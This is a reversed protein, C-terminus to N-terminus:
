PIRECEVGVAYGFREVICSLFESLVAKDLQQSSMTLLRRPYQNSRNKIISRLEARM